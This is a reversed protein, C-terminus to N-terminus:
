GKMISLCFLDKVADEIVDIITYLYMSVECHIYNMQRSFKIWKSDSEVIMFVTEKRYTKVGTDPYDYYLEFGLLNALEEPTSAQKPKNAMSTVM